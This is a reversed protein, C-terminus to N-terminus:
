IPLSKGKPASTRRRPIQTLPNIVFKPDVIQVNFIFAMLAQTCEDIPKEGKLAIALDVVTCPYLYNFSDLFTTTKTSSPASQNTTTTESPTVQPARTRKTASKSSGSCKKLPSCEEGDNAAVTTETPTSEVGNLVDHLNQPTIAKEKEKEAERPDPTSRGQGKKNEEEEQQKRIKDNKKKNILRLEEMKKIANSGQRTRVSMMNYYTVITWLYNQIGKLHM